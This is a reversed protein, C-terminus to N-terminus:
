EHNRSEKFVPHSGCGETRHFWCVWQGRTLSSKIVSMLWYVAPSSVSLEKRRKSEKEIFGHVM